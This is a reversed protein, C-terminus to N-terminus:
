IIGFCTSAQCHQDFQIGVTSTSVFSADFWSTSLWIVNTPYKSDSAEAAKELNYSKGM